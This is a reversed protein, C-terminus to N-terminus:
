SKKLTKRNKLIKLVGTISNLLERWTVTSQGHSRERFVIPTQTIRFDGNTLILAQESLYIFGTTFSEHDCIAETAVRSYARLGNTWDSIKKNFICRLVSNIIKSFIRRQLSWGVIESELLYRSGVCFDVGPVEQAVKLAMIAPHSGDSDMEVFCNTSKDLLAYELGMKVAHGRGGKQDNKIIKTNQISWNSDRFAAECFKVTDSDPSDDVVVISSNEPVAEHLQMILQYIADTERYAPLVFTIKKSTNM